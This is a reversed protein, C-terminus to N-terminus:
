LYLTYSDGSGCAIWNDKSHNYGFYESDSECDLTFNSSLTLAPTSDQEPNGLKTFYM